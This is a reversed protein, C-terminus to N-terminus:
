FSTNWKLRKIITYDTNFELSQFCDIYHKVCKVFLDPHKKAHEKVVLRQDIKLSDLKRWAAQLMEDSVGSEM